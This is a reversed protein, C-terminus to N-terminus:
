NIAAGRKMFIALLIGECDWLVSAM